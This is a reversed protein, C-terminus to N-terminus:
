PTTRSCRCVTRRSCPSSAIRRRRSPPRVGPLVVPAPLGREAIAAATDAFESWSSPVGVGLEDLVSRRYWLGAVDAEAQVAVLSGDFTNAEAFPELVDPEYDDHVWDPSLEALPWLFGAAAFERVWVSDIVAIDPARGEAVAHVVSQHLDRLDVTAVSLNAEGSAKRLLDEWPGEPVIVRLDLSGINRTLWPTLSRVVGGTVCSCV